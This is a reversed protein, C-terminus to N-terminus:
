GGGPAFGIFMQFWCGPRMPVFLVGPPNTPMGAEAFLPIGRFEGVKVLQGAAIHRPPGQPTYLFTGLEVPVTYLWPAGEAYPPATSPHVSRFSRSGVLTDGTAADFQVEIMELKGAAVVCLSQQSFSTSEDKAQPPGASGTGPRLACASLLFLVSFCIFRTHM